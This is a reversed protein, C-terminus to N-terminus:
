PRGSQRSHTIVRPQPQPQPQQRAAPAPVHDVVVRPAPADANIVTAGPPAHEGPKLHIYRVVHRVEAQRQTPSTTTSTAPDPVAETTVADTSSPFRVLGAAMVSVAGVTGIGLMLRVPRPDPRRRMPVDRAM